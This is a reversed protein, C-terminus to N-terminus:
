VAKLCVSPVERRPILGSGVAKLLVELARHRRSSEKVHRTEKQLIAGKGLDRLTSHNYCGGRAVPGKSIGSTIEGDETTAQSAKDVRRLLLFYRLFIGERTGLDLDYNKMEHSQLCKGSQGENAKDNETPLALM